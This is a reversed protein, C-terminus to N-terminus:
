RHKTGPPFIPANFLLGILFSVAALVEALRDKLTILFVVMTLLLEGKSQKRGPPREWGSHFDQPAPPILPSATPLTHLLLNRTRTDECQILRFVRLTEGAVLFIFGCLPVLSALGIAYLLGGFYRSRLLHRYSEMGIASEPRRCVRACTCIAAGVAIFAAAVIFFFRQFLM